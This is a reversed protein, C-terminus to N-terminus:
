REMTFARGDRQPLTRLWLVLLKDGYCAGFNIRRDMGEALVITKKNAAAKAKITDIFGM